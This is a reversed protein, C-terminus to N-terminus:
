IGNRPSLLVIGALFGLAFDVVHLAVRNEVDLLNFVQRFEIVCLGFYLRRRDLANAVGLFEEFRGLGIDAKTAVPGIIGGLGIVYLHRDDLCETVSFAKICRERMFGSVPRFM